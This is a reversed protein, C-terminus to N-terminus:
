SWADIIRILGKLAVVKDAPVEKSAAIREAIACAKHWCWLQAQRRDGDQGVASTTAQSLTGSVEGVPEVMENEISWVRTGIFPCAVTRAITM